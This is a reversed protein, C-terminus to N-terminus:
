SLKRGIYFSFAFEYFEALDEDSMDDLIEPFTLKNDGTFDYTNARKSPKIAVPEAELGGEMAGVKSSVSLAMEMVSISDAVDDPYKLCQEVPDYKVHGDELLCECTATQPSTVTVKYQQRDM